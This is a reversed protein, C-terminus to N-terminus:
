LTPVIINVKGPGYANGVTRQLLGILGWITVLVFLAIVSWFMWSKGEGRTKEDSSNLIFVALGYFFAVFAFVSFISGLMGAINGVVEITSPITGVGQAFVLMPAGLTMCFIIAKNM